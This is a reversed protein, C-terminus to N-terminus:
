AKLAAKAGAFFEKAIKAFAQSESGGDAEGTYTSVTLGTKADILRVTAAVHARVEFESLGSRKVTCTKGVSCKTLDAAVTYDGAGDVAALSLGADEAQECIVTGLSREMVNGAKDETRAVNIAGINFTKTGAQAKETGKNRLGKLVEAFGSIAVDANPIVNASGNSYKPIIASYAMVESGDARRLSCTYFAYMYMHWYDSSVKKPMVIEPEYDKSIQWILYADAGTESRVAAGRKAESAFPELLTPYAVPNSAEEFYKWQQEQAAAENETFLDRQPGNAEDKSLRRQVAAYDVVFVPNFDKMEEAFWQQTSITVAEQMQDGNGPMIGPFIVISNLNSFDAKPDYWVNDARFKNKGYGLYVASAGNGSKLLPELFGFALAQGTMLMFALTMVLIKKM